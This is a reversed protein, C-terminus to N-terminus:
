LPSSAYRILTDDCNSTSVCRARTKGHSQKIKLSLPLSAPPTEIVGLSGSASAATSSSVDIPSQKKGTECLPYAVSGDYM